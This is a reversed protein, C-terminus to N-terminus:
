ALLEALEWIHDAIARKVVIWQRALFGAATLSQHPHFSIEVQISTCFQRRQVL